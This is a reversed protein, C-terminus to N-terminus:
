WRFAREMGFSITNGFEVRQSAHLGLFEFANEMAVLVRPGLKQGKKQFPAAGDVPGVVDLFRGYRKETLGVGLVTGVLQVAAQLFDHNLWSDGRVGELQRQPM